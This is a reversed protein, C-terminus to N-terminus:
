KVFEVKLRISPYCVREVWGLRVVFEIVSTNNDTLNNFDIDLDISKFENEIHM